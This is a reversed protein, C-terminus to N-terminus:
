LIILYNSIGSLNGKKLDRLALINLASLDGSTSKHRRFYEPYMGISPLKEQGYWM